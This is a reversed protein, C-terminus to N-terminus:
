EKKNRKLLKAGIFPSLLLFTLGIPLLGGHFVDFDSYIDELSRGFAVGLTVEFIVTLFVWFLGVVLQLHYPIQLWPTLITVLTLIIISGTFVAIQRSRFEGLLPELYTIRTTGHLIEMGMMILWTTLARKWMKKTRFQIYVTIKSSNEDFSNSKNIIGLERKPVLISIM